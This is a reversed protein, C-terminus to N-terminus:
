QHGAEICLPRQQSAEERFVQRSRAHPWEFSGVERPDIVEEYRDELWLVHNRATLAEAILGLDGDQRALPLAREVDTEADPFRGVQQFAAARGLLLRAVAAPRTEDSLMAAAELGRGYWRLADDAAFLM